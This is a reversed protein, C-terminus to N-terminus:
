PLLKIFDQPPVPRSCFYGQYLSCGMEKLKDVQAEEEVGETIVNLNFYDAISLITKILVYDDHNTLLTKTFYRDIKLKDVPLKKLYSLSSYGTGFDDLAFQVGAKRLTRIKSVTMDFESILVSETIELVIMHPPVGSATIKSIMNEAFDPQFIQKMSINISLYELETVGQDLWKKFQSLVQGVIWDGLILIQNSSEAANIIDEPSIFGKTSHNWRLLSEAAIIRGNETEVIPQYYITLENNKLAEKLEVELVMKQKINEEMGSHYYSSRNRGKDKADYMATDASKLIHEASDDDSTFVYVGISTSTQLNHNDLSVPNALTDHIKGCVLDTYQVAKEASIDLNPLLVIFEDGGLRAVTDEERLLAKLRKSVEILLLDGIRHGMTDNILKFKDLDLFLLAGLHGHRQVSKLSQELRDKLLQRNPLDTLTDHYAQYEIKDQILMRETLDEFIGVGGMFEGENGLIPSTRLSIWIDKKSHATHYPGEYSGKEKESVKNLTPFIRKDPLVHLDLGILSGTETEAIKALSSNYNQIILNSDYYLIGTPAEDFITKYRRDNLTNKELSSLHKLKLHFAKIMQRNLTFSWFILFLYYLFLALPQHMNETVGITVISIYIMPLMFMNVHILSLFLGASLNMMGGTALAQIIILFILYQSTEIHPYLRLIVMAWFLTSLHLSGFGWYEALKSDRNMLKKRILFVYPIRILNIFIILGLFIFIGDAFIYGSFLFGTLLVTILNAIIGKLFNENISQIRLEKVFPDTKM